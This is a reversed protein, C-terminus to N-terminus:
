MRMETRGNDKVRVLREPWHLLRNRTQKKVALTPSLLAHPDDSGTQDAAGREIPWASFIFRRLM